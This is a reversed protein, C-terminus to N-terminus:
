LTSGPVLVYIDLTDLLVTGDGIVELTLQHLQDEDSPADTGRFTLLFEIIEGNVAGSPQVVAPDIGVVFGQDDGVVRLTVEDFVVAGILDDIAGVITQRFAANSSNWPFVLPDDAAGDGDTDAFSGTAGALDLMQPIPTEGDGNDVEVGILYGGLAVTAGAADALSADGPCGAPTPDVASDRMPADTAYVLIPLADERFGMGGLQGGGGGPDYHQGGIGGFPDTTASLFPRVDTDADFTVDCNQDYGGGSMAQFVAEISSETIDAGDDRTIGVLVNQVRGIDDTIAQELRFPLDGTNGMGGFNYDDHTAVGYRADPIAAAIDGVIQAFEGTIADITGQMSGTTDILFGIDGKEISLEFTFLEEVDGRPPVEVYIGDIVSSSDLPDTGVSVEAGDTYGDDDSDDDLPDSGSAIEGKDTLGDNDSDTDAYDPLGDDDSDLPAGWTPGDGREVTDPIGDGDSDPDLYDPVDDHDHDIPTENFATTGGEVLDTIGDGDADPDRFDPEGDQDTDPADCSVGIEIRDLITDGDDDPDTFDLILDGDLDAAGEVTDALCNGDSDLDVFDPYGDSDSDIPFTVLDTDGAEVRDIIGDSDSDPDSRNPLGDGDFDYWDDDQNGEEHDMITDGDEDPLTLDVTTPNADRDGGKCAALLSVAFLPAFRM